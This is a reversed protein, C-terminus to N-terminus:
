SLKRIEKWITGCFNDWTYKSECIKRNKESRNKLEKSSKVLWNNIIRVAEDVDHPINIFCDDNWYGSTQTCIPILGGALGFELLTTPNADSISVNLFIDAFDYLENIIKENRFDTWGIVQTNPLRAFSHNEHGGYWRFQTDPMRMAIETLYQTNKQPMDSGIYVVGRKKPDNFNSKRYKWINSDVAMDLRVMKPKWHAFQTQEITDYWYPGCISFIKDAKKAIHDFPWNDVVRNHHFPHISCKAKFTINNRFVQQTITAHDYHPHGIFIADPDPDPVKRSDWVDYTVTARNRLYNYLYNTICFPSDIRDTGPPFAYVLHIKM